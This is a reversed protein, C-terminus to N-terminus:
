RVPSYQAGTPFSVADAVIGLVNDYVVINIGNDTKSYCVGDVYIYDTREHRNVAIEGTGALDTVLGEAAATSYLIEGNCYIGVGGEAILEELWYQGGAREILNSDELYYDGSAAFVITYDELNELSRMYTGVNGIKKLEANKVEHQRAKVNEDWLAYQPLGRKDELSYNEKLWTGLYGTVKQAGYYNTHAMDVFDANPDLELEEQLQVFNLFPVGNSEALDQVYKHMKLRYEEEAVPALFFCLQINEEKALSMIRRLWEEEEEGIPLTEDGNYNRLEVSRTWFSAEYGMYVPRERLFDAKQLEKYRTHVIPWKLAFDKWEEEAAMSQVAQLFNLSPQYSLLNRYLNGQVAYGHTTASYSELFVVKPKQTKLAEVLCYYSSALDQGSISLSYAAIGYNEWLNAIDVSCYCHSSGLFLVDVCDRDLQYFTEMSSKYDGATDKWSFIQYLRQLLMIGILCFAIIKIAQRCYVGKMEM